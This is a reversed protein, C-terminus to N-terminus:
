IHTFNSSIRNQDAPPFSCPLVLSVTIVEPHAKPRKKEAARFLSPPKDVRHIPSWDPLRSSM